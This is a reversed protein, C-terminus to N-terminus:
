VCCVGTLDHHPVWRNQIFFVILLVGVGDPELGASQDARLSVRMTVMVTVSLFSAGDVGTSAVPATVVGPFM